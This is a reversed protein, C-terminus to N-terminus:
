TRPNEPGTPPQKCIVERRLNSATVAVIKYADFRGVDYWISGGQHIRDLVRRHYALVDTLGLLGAGVHIKDNDDRMSQVVSVGIGGFLAALALLFLIASM